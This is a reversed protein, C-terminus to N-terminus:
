RHRTTEERASLFRQITKALAKLHVPKSMYEDMGAALCRERDSPMALATLAIIPTYKFEPDQRLKQTAELGDMRPMQIDMLILDPHALKAQTLGDLGDQAVVIKYGTMELYDKVMMVVDHTDEILLITQQRVGPKIANFKGSIKMKEVPDLATVPEWPLEITFRSGQGPDSTVKVSGGHLRAMQAVLVLGLGTGTSERALGSDLQMFPKFLQPLNNESIGIGNDWVTISVKNEEKNGQVELGLKRGNPTFKVANSLLNVMMQKLRREDAWMLGVNKDIEVLVEQNKKQALQKIMRLSAQCISNVDVKNIDLTIQGAEIKALDLIDNILSLLHHGSEGITNIYKLQKENLPGALQEALSESLGLIANLPTRLEHSMNALFEDKVRLARALNSNARSLDATREDVRKALQNREEALVTVMQKRETIDWAYDAFRGTIELDAQTYEESKNGVGIVAMIKENRIIPLILERGVRVHGEPLSTYDNHIIARRQHVTESWVEVQDAPGYLREEGSAHFQKLTDTSWIQLGPTNQDEKIFQFFGITSQTWACIEDLAKQTLEQLSHGASYEMLEFRKQMLTETRRRETVDKAVVSVGRTSPYANIEFVRQQNNLDLFTEFTRPQHDDLVTRYIREIRAQEELQGFIEQMPKGIAEESKTGTLIESAKNWHTYRLEHDLEFFVDTISDALERYYTESSRLAIEMRKREQIEQQASQYLRANEFAIAAQNALTALLREDQATFADAAESEVSIVGITNESIKLPMYLGSMTGAYTDVYQPHDRVNGTRIPAGTQVAWGSLGQGIQSVTSNLRREFEVKEEANLDPQNFAILELENSDPRLLRIAVHHWSLYRAFTSIIRECIQHPELLQGVALGNEYLAELEALHRSIEFEARKRETIDRLIVTYLYHGGVEIHSLSAEIPFETGDRRLGSLSSLYGMARSTDGTQGFRIIHENHQAGYRSPIFREVPQGIAERATYGFMQEAAPNFLVIHQKTDVSIVADMASNVVGAFRIESERLANEAEKRQTVDAAIGALRVVKRDKDFIPFARDWVWRVSGDPHTIRYEMETKTGKRQEELVQRVRPRDAPLVSEIFLNPNRLISDLSHGWIKESAPSIYVEDGTIADTIWFVEQINDALQRFREESIRLGNEAQKRETINEHALVVWIHDGDEFKTIRLIFWRQEEPSHGPYEIQAERKRGAIVDRIASAVTSAEETFPGTASDCIELYNLDLGHRPSTLGNQEGFKRWASNVQVITGKEDLIAISASLANQVSQLFEESRRVKEDAQQRQVAATLQGSINEIRKLDNVTLLNPCSVSLLGMVNNNSILPIVAISKINLLNYIQPILKRIVSRALSPLFDTEVFELMWEQIEEPSSVLTGHRSNLFKQFYGNQKIPLQVLPITSGILKEIERTIETSLFYQQLIISNGDPSLRYIATNESSFLHKMAKALLNIITSLNEGRIVAENIINILGLDDNKQQLDIEAQKRETIDSYNIVIAQVSPEELLNTAIAEIWRWTGNQHLLRFVGHENWGPKRILEVLTKATWGQDDPHMLDFINRSIFEDQKYGLTRNVAPNEWLLTGDAALLSINDLSNEILARFHKEQKRSKEEALKRETIDTSLIFIGERAPQISLEFWGTDRNPFTFPNEIRKSIREEMCQRLAAFLETQEIGPYMEMMTHNLLEERTRKGQAAVVDNVYIYRWDFDIIQCGEMMADLVRHYRMENEIAAEEAQKRETITEFVSVFFNKEPSYVSVEFWLGSGLGPVYTEFKEPKGTQAVRGYSEFIEPNTGRIGPIVETVRRGIVDELGTLTKFANNIDLYIFDCPAGNEYVMQCRAFGNTMNEFLSRYRQESRHLAEETVKRETIDRVIFQYRGDAFMQAGLECIIRMGDKCIFKHETFLNKGPNLESLSLNTTELDEPAILERLNMSLLEDKTYGTLGCVEENVLLYQGQNNTIFIGASVLDLLEQYDHEGEVSHERELEEIRKEAAQLEAILQAKTKNSKM